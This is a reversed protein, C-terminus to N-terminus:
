HSRNLQIDNSNPSNKNQESNKKKKKSNSIENPFKRAM